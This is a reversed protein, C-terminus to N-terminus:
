ECPERREDPDCFRIMCGSCGHGPCFDTSYLCSEGRGMEYDYLQTGNERLHAVRIHNCSYGPSVHLGWGTALPLREGTPNTIIITDPGESRWVYEEEKRRADMGCGGLQVWLATGDPRIHLQVVAKPNPEEHAEPASFVGLLQENVTPVSVFEDACSGACVMLGLALVLSRLTLQM